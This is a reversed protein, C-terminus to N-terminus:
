RTGGGAEPPSLVDSPLLQEVEGPPQWTVRVVGGYQDNFYRIALLYLGARTIELRGAVKRRPHSGGNSVITKGGISLFSGDDSEVAFLYRGPRDIRITGLWEASFQGALPPDVTWDFDLRPDKRVFAPPGQWQMNPYYKGLLGGSTALARRLHVDYLPPAAAIAVVFAAWIASAAWPSFRPRFVAEWTNL